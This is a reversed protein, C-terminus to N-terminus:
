EFNLSSKFAFPKCIKLSNSLYFAGKRNEIPWPSPSQYLGLQGPREWVGREAKLPGAVPGSSRAPGGGFSTLSGPAYGCWQGL